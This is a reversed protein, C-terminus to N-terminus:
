IINSYIINYYSIGCILQNCKLALRYKMQNKERKFKLDRLGRSLDNQIKQIMIKLVYDFRKDNEQKNQAMTMMM